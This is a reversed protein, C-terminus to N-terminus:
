INLKQKNFVAGIGFDGKDFAVIAFSVLLLTTDRLLHYPGIKGQSETASGFCGCDIDLGISYAYSIAGLFIALMATTLFASPRVQIGVILFLGAFLEIWPLTLATFNSYAPPLILYNRVAPAFAAPDIVKYWSAYVFLGGIILRALMVIYKM